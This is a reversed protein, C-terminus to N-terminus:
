SVTWRFPFDAIIVNSGKPIGVVGQYISLLGRSIDIMVRHEDDRKFSPENM